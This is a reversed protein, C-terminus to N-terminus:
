FKQTVRPVSLYAQRDPPLEIRGRRRSNMLRRQACFKKMAGRSLRARRELENKAAPLRPM